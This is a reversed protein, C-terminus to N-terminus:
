HTKTFGAPIEPTIGKDQLFQEASKFPKPAHGNQGRLEAVTVGLAQAINALSYPNQSKDQEISWLGSTGRMGAKEALTALSWGKGERLRRIRQGQTEEVVPYSM